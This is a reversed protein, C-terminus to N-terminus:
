ALKIFMPWQGNLCKEFGFKSFFDDKDTISLVEYIQHKKAKKLCAQVLKTGIGEGQFKEDVILSRIEALKKNYIELSICGVTEGQKEYVFFSQLVKQIEIKSRPLVKGRRSAIQILKLIQGIDSKKARRLM